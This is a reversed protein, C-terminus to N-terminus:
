GAPKAGAGAALTLAYDRVDAPWRAMRAALGDIDGAFLARLAEEYGPLDGALATLFRYVAERSRRIRESAEGTKRAQEVLKRLAVSAGGPQANLWQWHRPLLTVERAVVGLRPRGRRTAPVGSAGAEAMASASLNPLRVFIDATAGRRDLEVPQADADSFVLFPMSPPLAQVAQAVVALPGCAIKQMGSFATFSEKDM